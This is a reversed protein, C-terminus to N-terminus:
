DVGDVAEAVEAFDAGHLEVLFVDNAVRDDSVNEIAVVVSKEPAEAGEKEVIRLSVRKARESRAVSSALSGGPVRLPGCAAPTHSNKRRASSGDCTAWM